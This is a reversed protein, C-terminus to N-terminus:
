AARPPEGSSTRRVRSRSRTARGTAGTLFQVGAMTGRPDRLWARVRGGRDPYAARLVADTRELRRRNTSTDAVVLLRATRAPRTGFRGEAIRPALRVKADHRRLLEEISALETKVEVVLLTRSGAHWALIDISGREGWESFTVEPLVTWGRRELYATV